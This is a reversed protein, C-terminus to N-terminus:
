KYYITRSGTCFALSVGSCLSRPNRDSAKGRRWIDWPSTNPSLAWPMLPKLVSVCLHLVMSKTDCTCLAMALLVSTFVGGLGGGLVMLRWGHTVPAGCARAEKKGKGAQWELVPTDVIFSYLLHCGVYCALKSHHYYRSIVGCTVTCEFISKSPTM